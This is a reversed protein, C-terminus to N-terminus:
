RIRYVLRHTTALPFNNMVANAYIIWYEVSDYFEYEESCFHCVVKSETYKGHSHSEM